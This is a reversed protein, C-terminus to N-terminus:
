FGSQTEVSEGIGERNGKPVISSAFSISVNTKSKPEVKPDREPCRIDEHSELVVISDAGNQNM